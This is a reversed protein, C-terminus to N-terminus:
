QVTDLQELIKVLTKVGRDLNQISIRENPGHVGRSESAPLWRPVFGYAVIGLNRFYHADTFGAIVRPAVVAGPDVEAAAQRIADFLPTDAPSSRSPFALIPEVEVGPDSIVARIGNAFVDCRQGPLIRADLHAYAEAPAVNTRPAGELVTITVTNRVLAARGRSSLFRSRFRPDVALGLSLHAYGERDEDAAYPALAEFMRQVEPTVRVETQMTRVRDLAAILRPVAADASPASSHGPTGRATVRLWCPSKEAVSVGWVPVGDGNGALIGGGETLLYQADRLLDKRQAVLWGAGDRGGTEEDPTALFIVDRDLPKERRSLEVLTMLHAVGVGKADLAGRGVVYGGGVVGALPEVAWEAADAPVTDLHSLLIIPRARGNGPVRGWAAARGQSSVGEPTEVLKSEIGQSKLVDVFLEALPRENGPPNTTDLRIARSLIEAAATPLDDIPGNSGGRGFPWVAGAPFSLILCALFALLASAFGWFNKKKL